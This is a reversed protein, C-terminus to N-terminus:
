LRAEYGLYDAMALRQLHGLPAPLPQRLEAVLAGGDPSFLEDYLTTYLATQPSSGEPANNIVEDTGFNAYDYLEAEQGQQVIHISGPSFHSYVGLKATKTRYGIVHTPAPRQAVPGPPQIKSIAVEQPPLAARAAEEPINEDCTHLIFDRGPANPDGLMDVLNARGALHAYEIKTRWEDDGSALSMLLPVLDVHSTLENRSTSLFRPSKHTWKWAKDRLAM